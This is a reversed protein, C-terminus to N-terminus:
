LDERWRRFMDRAHSGKCIKYIRRQDAIKKMMEEDGEVLMDIIDQQLQIMTFLGVNIKEQENCPREHAKDIEEAIMLNCDLCMGRHLHAAKKGCVRCKYKKMREDEIRLGLNRRDNWDETAIGIDESKLTSIRCKPCMLVYLDQDTRKYVGQVPASHCLPCAKLESM